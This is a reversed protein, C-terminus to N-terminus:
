GLREDSRPQAGNRWAEASTRAKGEPQVDLLRLAGDGTSQYHDALQVLTDAAFPGSEAYVSMNAINFAYGTGYKYSLRYATGGELNIGGTHLWDDVENGSFDYYVIAVNPTFGAPVFETTEWGQGILTEGRFCSPIAPPTVTSFDELFPVDDAICSTKFAVVLSWPSNTGNCVGAVYIFYQTNPDLGTIDIPTTGSAEDGSTALGTAGSGPAGSTRIEYTYSDSGNDAWSISVGDSLVSSFAIDSPYICDAAELKINDVAWWYTYDGGYFFRVQADPSGGAATTINFQLSVAPDPYGVSTGVPATYVPNWQTGDWVEVRATTSPYDRYSQDFSLIFNGASADFAPSTLTAESYGGGFGCNDSDFIAFDADFGAGTIIRLGPNNFVWSCTGENQEVTFGATSAGGTFDENFIVQANVTTAFALIVTAAITQASRKMM